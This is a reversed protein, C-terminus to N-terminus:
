MRNTKHTFFLRVFCVVSVVVLQDHSCCLLCGPTRPWATSPPPPYAAPTGLLNHNSTQANLLHLWRSTNVQCCSWQSSWAYYVIHKLFSLAISSLM